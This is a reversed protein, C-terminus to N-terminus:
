GVRPAAAVLIPTPLEAMWDCARQVVPADAPAQGILRYEGAALVRGLAALEGALRALLAATEDATCAHRVLEVADATRRRELRVLRGGEAKYLFGDIFARRLECRTNFHWAPDGDLYVSGCGDARFGVVVRRGGGLEIEFREVLAVAERLLDEREHEERAM